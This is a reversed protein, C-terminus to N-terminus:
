VQIEKQPSPASLSTITNAESTTPSSTYRASSGSTKATASSSSRARGAGDAMSFKTPQDLPVQHKFTPVGSHLTVDPDFVADDDSGFASASYASQFDTDSDDTTVSPTVPVPSSATATPSESSGAKMASMSASKRVPASVEQEAIPDETPPPLNTTRLTPTSETTHPRLRPPPPALRIGRPPRPPRTVTKKLDIDSGQSSISARRKSTNKDDSAM